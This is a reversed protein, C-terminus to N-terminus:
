SRLCAREITNYFQIFIINALKIHRSHIIDTAGGDAVAEGVMVLGVDVGEEVMVLGMVGETDELETAEVETAEVEVGLLLAYWTAFSLDM